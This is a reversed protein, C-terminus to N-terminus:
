VTFTRNKEKSVNITQKTKFKIYFSRKISFYMVKKNDLPTNIRTELYGIYGFCIAVSLVICAIIQKWYNLINFHISSNNNSSSSGNSSSSNTGKDNKERSKNSNSTAPTKRQRVM